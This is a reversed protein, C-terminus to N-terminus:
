RRFLRFIGSFLDRLVYRPNPAQFVPEGPGGPIYVTPRDGNANLVCAVENQINGLPGVEPQPAQFNDTM